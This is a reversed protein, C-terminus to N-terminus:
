VAAGKAASFCTNGTLLLLLVLLSVMGMSDVLALVLVLEAAAIQSTTAAIRGNPVVRDAVFMPYVM